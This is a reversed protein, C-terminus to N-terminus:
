KVKNGLAKKLQNNVSFYNSITFNLKESLTKVIISDPFNDDFDGKYVEIVQLQDRTIAFNAPNENRTIEPDQHMYDIKNKGQLAFILRLDTIVLCFTLKSFLGTKQQIKEIVVEVREPQDIKPPLHPPTNQIPISNLPPPSSIESM